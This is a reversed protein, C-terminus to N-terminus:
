NEDNIISCELETMFQPRFEWKYDKRLIKAPVGAVLVNSEMFQDTLVSGIGVITRDGIQSGPAFRVASGIYCQRGIIIDRNMTGAGHTWFQSGCGAIWSRAGLVLSGTVDFFHNSTIMADREISLSRKYHKDKCKTSAAWPGCRFMNGNGITANEIYVIMPGVFKTFRGIACNSLYAQEVALVTGYGLQTSKISYRFFFRYLCCRAISFPVLSILHAIFTCLKRKM